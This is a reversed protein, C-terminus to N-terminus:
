RNLVDAHLLRPFLRARCETSIGQQISVNLNLNITQTIRAQHKIQYIPKRKKEWNQPTANAKGAPGTNKREKIINPRATM